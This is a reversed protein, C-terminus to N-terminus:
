NTQKVKKYELIEIYQRLQAAPDQEGRKALLEVHKRVVEIAEDYRRQFELARALKSYLAPNESELTVAEAFANSAGKFDGMIALTDGLRDWAVVSAPDEELEIRFWKAALVLQERGQEAESMGRLLIGLNMYM